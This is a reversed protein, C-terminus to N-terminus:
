NTNAIYRLTHSCYLLCLVDNVFPERPSIKQCGAWSTALFTLLRGSEKKGKSCILKIVGRHKRRDGRALAPHDLSAQGQSRQFAERFRPIRRRNASRSCEGEGPAERWRERRALTSAGKERLSRTPSSLARSRRIRLALWGQPRGSQQPAVGLNKVLAM